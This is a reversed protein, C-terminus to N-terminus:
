GAAAVAWFLTAFSWRRPRPSRSGVAGRPHRRRRICGTGLLDPIRTGPRIRGSV